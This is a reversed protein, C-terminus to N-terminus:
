PYIGELGKDKLMRLNSTKMDLCRFAHLIVTQHYIYFSIVPFERILQENWQFYCTEYVGCYIKPTSKDDSTSIAFIANIGDPWIPIQCVFFPGILDPGKYSHFHCSPDMTM